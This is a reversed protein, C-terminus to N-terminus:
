STKEHMLQKKIWQHLTTKATEIKDNNNVILDSHLKHPAIFQEHMAHLRTKFRERVENETRGRFAVDRAIRRQVRVDKAAEIYVKLDFQEVLPQHAFILIGEVLLHKKPKYLVTESKRLHTEFSYVPRQIDNRNQLMNIHTTLLEFDLANPHDFNTQSREELTRKPEHKYYHDQSIILTDQTGLIEAAYEVLTSKGAGTGGCFGIIM